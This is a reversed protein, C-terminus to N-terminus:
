RHIKNLEANKRKLNKVSIVPCFGWFLQGDNLLCCRPKFPFWLFDFSVPIDKPAKYFRATRHCYAMRTKEGNLMLKYQKLRVRLKDLIFESQEVNRTHIM